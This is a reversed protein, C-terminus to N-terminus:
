IQEPAELFALVLNSIVESYIVFDHMRVAIPRLTIIYEMKEIEYM